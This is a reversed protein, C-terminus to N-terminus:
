WNLVGYNQEHCAFELSLSITRPDRDVSWPRGVNETPIHVTLPGYEPRDKHLARGSAVRRLSGQFEHRRGTMSIRPRSSWRKAEGAALMGYRDCEGPHPRTWHIIRIQEVAQCRSIAPSQLLQSAATVGGSVRGRNAAGSSRRPETELICRTYTSELTRRRGGIGRRRRRRPRGDSGGRRAADAGGEAPDRSTRACTRDPVGAVTWATDKRRNFRRSRSGRRGGSYKSPPIRERGYLGSTPWSPLANCRRYTRYAVVGCTRIAWAQPSPGTKM